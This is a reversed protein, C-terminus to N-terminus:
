MSSWLLSFLVLCRRTSLINIGTNKIVAKKKLKEGPSSFNIKVMASFIQKASNFRM